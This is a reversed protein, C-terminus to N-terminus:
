VASRALAPNRQKEVDWGTPQFVIDEASYDICWAGGLYWLACVVVTLVWYKTYYTTSYQVDEKEAKENPSVTSSERPAELLYVAVFGVWFLCCFCSNYPKRYFKPERITTGHYLDFFLYGCILSTLFLIFIGIGVGFIRRAARTPTISPALTMPTDVTVSVTPSATTQLLQRGGMIQHDGSLESTSGM